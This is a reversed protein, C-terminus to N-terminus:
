CNLIVKLSEHLNIGAQFNGRKLYIQYTKKVRYPMYRSCFEYPLLLNARWVLEGAVRVAVVVVLAKHLRSSANSAYERKNTFM